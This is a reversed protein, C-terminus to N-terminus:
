LTKRWAGWVGPLSDPACESITRAFGELVNRAHEGQAEAFIRKDGPTGGEAEPLRLCSQKDSSGIMEEVFRRNVTADGQKDYALNLRVEHIKYYYSAVDGGFRECIEIANYGGSNIFDEASTFHSIKGVKKCANLYIGDIIRFLLPCDVTNMLLALSKDRLVKWAFDTHVLGPEELRERPSPLVFTICLSDLLRRPKPMVRMRMEEGSAYQCFLLSVFEYRGRYEELMTACRGGACQPELNFGFRKFLSILLPVQEASQCSFLFRRWWRLGDDGEATLDAWESKGAFFARVEVRLKARQEVTCYKLDFQDTIEVGWHILLLLVLVAATLIKNDVRNLVSTGKDGSERCLNATKIRVGGPGKVKKNKANRDKKAAKGLIGTLERVMKDLKDLIRNETADRIKQRLSADYSGFDDNSHLWTDDAKAAILAGVRRALGPKTVHKVSRNLFAQCNLELYDLLTPGVTHIVCGVDGAAIIGRPKVKPLWEAKKISISRPLGVKASKAVFTPAATMVAELFRRETRSPGWAKPLNEPISGLFQDALRILEHGGGSLELLTDYYADSCFSLLDIFGEEIVPAPGMHRHACAYLTNEANNAMAHSLSRPDGPLLRVGQPKIHAEEYQATLYVENEQHEGLRSIETMAREKLLEGVYRPNMMTLDVITVETMGDFVYGEAQDPVTEGFLVRGFVESPLEPMVPGASLAAIVDQAVEAVVRDSPDDECPPAPEVDARSRPFHLQTGGETPRDAVAANMSRYGEEPMHFICNGPETMIAHAALMHLEYVHSLLMPHIVATCYENIGKDMLFIANGGAAADDRAMLASNQRTLNKLIEKSLVVPTLHVKKRWCLGRTAYSVVGSISSKLRNVCTSHMYLCDHCINTPISVRVCKERGYATRLLDLSSEAEICWLCGKHQTNRTMNAVYALGGPPLGRGVVEGRSLVEGLSTTAM